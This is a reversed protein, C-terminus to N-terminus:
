YWRPIAFYFGQRFEEDKLELRDRREPFKPLYIKEPFFKHEILLDETWNVFDSAGWKYGLYRGSLYMNKQVSRSSRSRVDHFFLAKPAVKIKMNNYKVRWSLDVDECYMKFNEDFGNTLDYAHKTVLLCAGSCWPTELSIQDYPKPHEMPFQISEVLGVKEDALATEIMEKFCVKLPYGDPNIMIYHDANGEYFATSMLRNHGAAFGLNLNNNIKFWNSFNDPIICPTASNDIFIFEFDIKVDNVNKKTEEMAIRSFFELDELEELTNNFLVTGVVIKITRKNYAPSESAQIVYRAVDDCDILTINDDSESSDERDDASLCQNETQVIKLTEQNYISNIVVSTLINPCPKWRNVRAYGMSLWPRTFFLFSHSTPYDRYKNISLRVFRENVDTKFGIQVHRYKNIDLGGEIDAPFEERYSRVINENEDYFDISIAGRCRHSAVYVSFTYFVEKLIPILDKYQASINENEFKESYIAAIKTSGIIDFGEIDFILEKKYNNKIMFWPSEKSFDSNEILNIESYNLMLDPRETYSQKNFHKTNKVKDILNKESILLMTNSQSDKFKVNTM